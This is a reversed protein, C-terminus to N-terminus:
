ICFGFAIGYQTTISGSNESAGDSGIYGYNGDKTIDPSRVWWEEPDGNNKSRKRSDNDTFVDYPEGEGYYSSSQNLGTEEDSILWCKESTRAAGEATADGSYKFVESIVNQLEEPLANFLGDNLWDRLETNAYNISISDSHVARNDKLLNKAFFTLTSKPLTYVYSNKDYLEYIKDNYVGITTNYNSFGRRFAFSQIWTDNLEDWVYHSEATQNGYNGFIHLKDLYTFTVCNNAMAIVPLANKVEWKGSTTNLVCHANSQWGGLIHIQNNFVVVESNNDGGIDSESEDVSVWEGEANEDYYYHQKDGLKFIHMTGDYVVVRPNAVPLTSVPTWDNGDWAVHNYYYDVTNSGFFHIKGDFVVARSGALTYSLTTDVNIWGDWPNYKYINSMAHYMENKYVILPGLPYTSYNTAIVGMDEWTGQADTSLEDHNHAIIEMDITESTGDEYTIEVPKYAGVEYLSTATGNSCNEAIVDWGDTIKRTDYFQAYCDTNGQINTPEPKWGIFDFDNTDGTSDNTPKEGEYEVDAGYEAQHTELLTNGNYFNVTYVQITKSFATYVTRDGEVNLLADDEADGDPITTWGSFTYIYQKDAEKAPTECDGNKVPDTGDGGNRIEQVCLQAWELKGEVNKVEHMFYLNSVLSDYTITLYPFATAIEAYEEGTLSSIHCKGDVWMEDTNVGNEDKGAIDREILSLLASADNWEWNVNTLRAREINPSNNLITLSDVSPCNVCELTKLNDYGELTLEEIYLQNKLTLNTITKPLQVIKLYGSDPLEVSTIGSGNAYIEEINPCNSLGLSKTFSPCNQIDIKKLLRNTGVSLDELNTNLYGETGDGVKLEVLKTAKSVDIYGCYLSALDGLSSLQSAGYIATETDNFTENHESEFTEGNPTFTILEGPEARKQYLTGNAKYRVGAYMHSYPKVKISADAAIALDTRPEGNADTPTYIRLAVYDEAYETAYWKSDCYNLRNEIFYRFHEEGTGRVQPLNTADGESRLMSIYKFDGDENYVSESWKDSGNIIFQDILEEYNLVSNSRLNQYTKKIKDPFAQRFNVWLTSNQGNYVNKGDVQDHDEHYYDFVMQGENNIGFSTDNDYFYPYYKGTSGWYTLFMNKARQDVMLAFFTYVYYILSYHMDFWSEFETKFKALRYEATDCTYINNDVDTYTEPLAEETAQDQRTSVVWNHMEKFRSIAIDRLNLLEEQQASTITSGEMEALEQLEEIKDWVTDEDGSTQKLALYRPEFDDKWDRPIEGLFNCSNSTNNKFEWCEVDYDETFGFVYEAGKDYNYNAKGYFVPESNETEQHFLLIPKGYITTRVKPENAQPPVSESYLKEVFNANQTNHTGTAEAYDVKICIVQAPLQDIDIYHNESMKLKWNKRVYWQSSTGQVDIVVMNDVYDLNSDEVDYYYIKVDKKDDKAAPLDGVIVMVSNKEKAKSYSVRGFEDYIDNDEYVETKKVVDTIGAIYNTTVSSDTLATTYSRITYLDIGCYPSGISINVPSKQEFNDTTSYQIVDSLVGNLYISLMRYEATSEVVFTLHVREEEKYNCFVKSQESQIYATDAKVEFGLNGSMCSIPVANRNNVDRIAFVLEITKGSTRIDTSFPQFSIEATADGNLRLCTDGNDDNVWGVSNWNMNTFTTTIDGYTWQAPNTENNSRGEASLLLELDNTEAEIKLASEVVTLSHIKSINGYKIRFYVTGIPYKRTNWYWQKRDVTIDQSTYEIESGSEKTYITLTIDCSLKTPDYVIYPISVQEGQSVIEKEYVSAIIPTTNDPEICIIDYVLKESTLETDNLTATSYVELRHVGHSMKEITRTMQKGSLSTIVTGVETGDIVFHITKQVSGYPIYKFAIDDNYPVTADFTSEVTLQVVTIDYALSRSKGYIDTCTVVVTNNGINLYPAVDISTLGQPINMNVKQASNVTIKCNGNGTPLDNETSTFTFMLSIANGYAGVLTSTGNQNTLRVTVGEGGGVGNEKINELEEIIYNLQETIVRNQVPNTSSVNLISDVEMPLEISKQNQGDSMYLILANSTKETSLDLNELSLGSGIIANLVFAIQQRLADGATDYITGDHGIRMDIVEASSIESSDTISQILANLRASLVKISIYDVNDNFEYDEPQPRPIVPINIACLTKFKNDSNEQYVYAIISESQQLLINPISAILKDEEISPTVVLATDSHINCFHLMCPVTTDIGRLTLTQNIDWQYFHQLWNGDATYCVIDSMLMDGKKLLQIYM